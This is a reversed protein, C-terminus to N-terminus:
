AEPPDKWFYHILENEDNAFHGPGLVHCKVLGQSYRTLDIWYTKYHITTFTNPGFSKVIKGLCLWTVDVNQHQRAISFSIINNM